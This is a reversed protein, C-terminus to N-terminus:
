VSLSIDSFLCTKYVLYLYVETVKMDKLGETSFNNTQATHLVQILDDIM